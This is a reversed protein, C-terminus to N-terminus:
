RLTSILLQLQFCVHGRQFKARLLLQMCSSDCRPIIYQLDVYEGDDDFLLQEVLLLIPGRVATLSETAAHSETRRQSDSESIPGM